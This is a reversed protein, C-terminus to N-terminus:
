TIRSAVVFMYWGALSSTAIDFRAPSLNLGWGRLAKILPEEHKEVIIRKGDLSLVNLSLWYYYRYNPWNSPLTSRPPTLIEWGSKKIFEPLNVVPRDPNVLLKGPALPVFTADIHIALEDHVELLHCRYHPAFHRSLWEFGLRNTAHSRQVFLDEGCRAVDAADFAPEKESIVYQYPAQQHDDHWMDGLMRPKPAAAWQAGRRFYELILDRYALNEYYRSRWSMPVEIIESGVILLVDRPCTQANGTSSWFPTSYNCSWDIPTPRRVTIGEAELIHIFEDLESQALTVRSSDYHRGANAKHLDRLWLANEAPYVAQIAPEWPQCVAGELTGVIIEELPDWENYTSVPCSTNM